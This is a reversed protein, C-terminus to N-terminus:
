YCPEQRFTGNGGWSNLCRIQLINRCAWEDSHEPFNSKWLEFWAFHVIEHTCSLLLFDNNSKYNVDFSKHNLFRPWVPNLNVYGQCDLNIEKGFIKRFESNIFDSKEDWAKQFVDVQGKMQELKQNYLKTVVNEIQINRNREPLSHLEKLNLGFYDAVMRSQRSDSSLFSQIISIQDELSLVHFKVNIM